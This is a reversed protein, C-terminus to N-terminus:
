LFQPYKDIKEKLRKALVENASSLKEYITKAEKLYNEKKAKEWYFPPHNLNSIRDAMKVMWIEKSQDKIRKLSDSMQDSKRELDGNKSLALVGNAVNVGFNTEIDDYTVATDEVTDHLIACQVALDANYTETSHQLAWIIEMTVMGIHNIYDVYEGEEPGGYKQGAHHKTAFRWAKIYLERNWTNM